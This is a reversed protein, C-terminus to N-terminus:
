RSILPAYITRDDNVAAQIQEMLQNFFQFPTESKVLGPHGQGSFGSPVCNSIILEFTSKLCEQFPFIRIVLTLKDYPYPIRQLKNIICVTKKYLLSSLNDLMLSMYQPIQLKLKMISEIGNTVTQHTPYFQM